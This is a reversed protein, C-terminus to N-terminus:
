FNNELEIFLGLYRELQNSVNSYYKLSNEISDIINNKKVPQSLKESDIATNDNIKREIEKTKLDYESHNFDSKLYKRINEFDLHLIGYYIEEEQQQNIYLKSDTNDKFDYIVHFTHPNINRKEVSGKIELKREIISNRIKYLKQNIIIINKYILDFLIKGENVETRTANEDIAKILIKYEKCNKKYEFFALKYEM